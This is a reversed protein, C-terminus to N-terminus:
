LQYESFLYLHSFTEVDKLGAAYKKFVEVRGIARPEYLPQIPCEDKGEYPTYIIGIPEM